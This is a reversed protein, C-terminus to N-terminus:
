SNPRSTDKQGEVAVQFEHRLLTNMRKLVMLLTCVFNISGAYVIFSSAARITPNQKLGVICVISMIIALLVCYCINSFTERLLALKLKQDIVETVDQPNGARANRIVDFLLVLLNFLLGSLIAFCALLTTIFDPNLFIKLWILGAAAVLPLIAFLLIDERSIKKTDFDRLTSWHDRIIGGFSIKTFLM